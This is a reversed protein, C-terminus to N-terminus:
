LLNDLGSSALMKHRLSVRDDKRAVAGPKIHVGDMFYFALGHGFEEVVPISAFRWSDVLVVAVEHDVCITKVGDFIQCDCGASSVQSTIDAGDHTDVGKQFLPAQDVILYAVGKAMM